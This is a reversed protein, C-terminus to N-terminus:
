KIIVMTQQNLALLRGDEGWLERHEVCYGDAAAVVRARHFLPAELPLGEFRVFPQFTFAITAMPRPSEEVTYLAPWWADICAALYAADRTVGPNKACVWGQAVPEAGGSFPFDREARYQFYRTFDPAMGPEMPLPEMARWDPRAPVALHVGDRTTARAKGLVGV